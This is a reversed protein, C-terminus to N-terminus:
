WANHGVYTPFGLTDPKRILVIETLMKPGLHRTKTKGSPLREMGEMAIPVGSDRVNRLRTAEFPAWPDQINTSTGALRESKTKPM